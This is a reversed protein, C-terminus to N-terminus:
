INWSRLPICWNKRVKKWIPKFMSYFLQSKKSQKAKKKWFSNRILRAAVSIASWFSSKTKLRKYSIISRMSTTSFHSTKTRWRLSSTLLSKPRKQAQSKGSTRSPKKTSTSAPPPPLSRVIKSLKKEASFKPKLKKGDKRLRTSSSSKLRRTTTWSACSNRINWKISPSIRTIESKSGM